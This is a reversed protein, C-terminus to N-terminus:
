YVLSNVTPKSTCTKILCKWIVSETSWVVFSKVNSKNPIALIQSKREHNSKHNSIHGQSKFVKTDPHTIHGLKIQSKGVVSVLLQSTTGSWVSPCTWGLEPNLCSWMPPRAYTWFVRGYNTNPNTKTSNVECEVLLNHWKHSIGLQNFRKAWLKVLQHKALNLTDPISKHKTGACTCMQIQLLLYVPSTPTNNGQFNLM